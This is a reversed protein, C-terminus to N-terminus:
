DRQQTWGKWGGEGREDVTKEKIGIFLSFHKKEEKKRMIFFQWCGTLRNWGRGMIRERVCVCM